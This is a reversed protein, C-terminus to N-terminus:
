KRGSNLALEIDKLDFCYVKRGEFEDIRRSFSKAFVALNEKREDNHWRVYKSKEALEECIKEANVRSQWKCEAFLIEKTSKNLAVIDIEYQDKGKQKDSIRGWQKGTREASFPLKIVDGKILETIILEFKKGVWANLNGKLTTALMEEEKRELLEQYRWVNAFWFDILNSNIRYVGRKGKLLPVERKVFEFDKILLYLYKTIKTQEKGVFNAIESLKTNGRSIASLISFFMRHEKGFEEKLMIKVEEYLPHPYYVFMELLFKELDFTKMKEILEYYKPVGGFISYLRVTTEFDLNLDKCIEWVTRFDLEKLKLVIDFRGFLPSKYSEILHKMTRILSGAVVLKPKRKDILRQLDFIFSKNVKMVNQIEDIFIIKDKMHTFLYEFLDKFTNFRPIEEYEDAWDNIIEKESKEASIFLTLRNKNYIEEVLRTKGVRRRGVVAIRFDGKLNKLLEKEKERDYFKM